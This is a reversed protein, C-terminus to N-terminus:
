ATKVEIRKSKVAKSKGMTIRLIGDKYRAEVRDPSVATPLPISRSFRGYTREMIHYNKEQRGTEQKKEGTVTLLDPTVSINIEDPNIGPVEVEAVLGDPTELLDLSPKWDRELASTSLESSFRDWIREMERRMRELEGSASGSKILKVM